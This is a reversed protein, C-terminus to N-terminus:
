EKPSAISRSQHEIVQIDPDAVARRRPAEVRRHEALRRVGVPLVVLPRVEPDHLDVGVMRHSPVQVHGERRRRLFLDVGEPPAPHLRPVGTVALGPESRLVGLVVVAGKEEIWVAVADLGHVPRPTGLAPRRDIVEPEPDGVELRAATEPLRDCGHEAELDLM